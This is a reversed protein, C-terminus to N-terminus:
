PKWAPELGGLSGKDDEFKWAWFLKCAGFLGLEHEISGM